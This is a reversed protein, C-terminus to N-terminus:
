NLKRTLKLILYAERIKIFKLTDGGKDPHCVIILKRYTNQINKWSANSELGLIHLSDLRKDIENSELSLKNYQCWFGNLLKEVDEENTSTFNNWDLYFESLCVSSNADNETISQINQATDLLMIELSSIKLEYDLNKLEGKLQYLANMVIFNKRFLLLNHDSIECTHTIDYNNKELIGMLQYLTLPKKITKLIDFIVFTLLNEKHMQYILYVIVYNM